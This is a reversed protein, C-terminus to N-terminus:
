MSRYLTDEHQGWKSHFDGSICQFHLPIEYSILMSEYATFDGDVDISGDLQDHIQNGHSNCKRHIKDIEDITLTNNM